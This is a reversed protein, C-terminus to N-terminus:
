RLSRCEYLRLRRFVRDKLKVEHLGLDKVSEFQQRIELPIEPAPFDRTALLNTEGRFWKWLWGDALRPPNFEAAFIADQGRRHDQYRYEPWFFFQSNPTKTAPPYVWPANTVAAARADPLYFTFLGTMGYHDAVVFVPQGNTAMRTRAADVIQVTEPWARVRRLPDKEAPLLRGTIKRVVNTNHMLGVAALGLVLGTIFVPKIWRWGDRWRAEWYLAMLCFMPVIAPAVWNPLVRKHFSFLWFGFFVPAGMCFLYLWLPREQRHRWAAATAWVAGIAFVPNLLGLQSFLFDCFFRLTPTWGRGVGANFAVHDVTIWQHQANWIIVPITCLLNILLALYPGPKKL